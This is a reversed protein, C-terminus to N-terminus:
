KNEFINTHMVAKFSCGATYLGNRVWGVQPPTTKHVDSDWYTCRVSSAFSTSRGAEINPLLYNDENENLCETGKSM